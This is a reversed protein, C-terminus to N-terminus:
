CEGEARMHDRSRAHDRSPPCVGARVRVQTAAVEGKQAWCTGGMALVLVSVLVTGNGPSGLM